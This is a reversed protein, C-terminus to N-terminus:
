SLCRCWLSLCQWNLLGPWILLSSFLETNWCPPKWSVPTDQSRGWVNSFQFWLTTSGPARLNWFRGGNLVNQSCPPIQLSVYFIHGPDVAIVNVGRRCSQLSFNTRSLHCHVWHSPGSCYTPILWVHRYQRWDSWQVWMWWHFWSGCTRWSWFRNRVGCTADRLLTM